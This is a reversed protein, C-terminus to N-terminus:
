PIPRCEPPCNTLLQELMPYSEAPIDGHCCIMGAVMKEFQCFEMQLSFINGSQNDILRVWLKGTDIDDAIVRNDECTLDFHFM